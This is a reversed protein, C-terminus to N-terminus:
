RYSHHDVFGRFSRRAGGPCEVRRWCGVKAEGMVAGKGALLAADYTSAPVSDGRDRDRHDTHIVFRDGTSEPGRVGGGLYATTAMNDGEGLVLKEM